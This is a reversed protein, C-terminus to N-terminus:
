LRVAYMAVLLGDSVTGAALLATTLCLAITIAVVVM